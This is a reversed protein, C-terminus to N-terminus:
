DQQEKELDDKLINAFNKVQKKVWEHLMWGTQMTKTMEELYYQRVFAKEEFRIKMQNQIRKKDIFYDCNSLDKDKDPM